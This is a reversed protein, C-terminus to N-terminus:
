DVIRDYDISWMETTPQVNPSWRGRLAQIASIENRSLEVTLVFDDDASMYADPAYFTAASGGCLVATFCADIM